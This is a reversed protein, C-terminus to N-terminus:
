LEDKGGRREGESKRGEGGREGGYGERGEMREMM